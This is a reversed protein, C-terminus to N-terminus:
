TYNIFDIPNFISSGNKDAHYEALYEQETQGPTPIYYKPRSFNQLDMITSYGSRCIICGATSILKQLIEQDVINYIKWHKPQNGTNKKQTGRILTVTLNTKNNFLEVMNTEITSRAPEPGSILILIDYRSSQKSINLRSLGGIYTCPIKIKDSNSLIGSLSQDENDPIWCHHYNHIIKRHIINATIAIIKNKHLINLQHSIYINLTSKHFVGFRNDSIITDAKWEKVITNIAQKEKRFTNVLKPTQKIMSVVM